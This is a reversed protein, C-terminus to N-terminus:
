KKCFKEKESFICGCYKQRYIDSERALQQAAKFGGRFDNDLFKVGSESSIESGIKVIAERDQYPSVLLTTTFADFGNKKAYQAAKHLRVRWCIHCRSPAKTDDCIKKFWDETNYEGFVIKLGEKSAYDAVAKRRREM